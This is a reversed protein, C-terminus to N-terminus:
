PASFSTRMLGSSVPRVSSSRVTVMAPVGVAVDHRLDAVLVVHAEDVARERVELRQDSALLARDTQHQERGLRGPM